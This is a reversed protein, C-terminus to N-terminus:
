DKKIIMNVGREQVAHILQQTNKNEDARGSPNRATRKQEELALTELATKRLAARGCLIGGINTFPKVSKKSRGGRSVLPMVPNISSAKKAL